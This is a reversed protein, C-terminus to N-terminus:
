NITRADLFPIVVHRQDAQRDIFEVLLNPAGDLDIIGVNTICQLGVALIADHALAAVRVLMQAESADLARGIDQSVCSLLEATLTNLAPTPGQADHANRELDHGTM